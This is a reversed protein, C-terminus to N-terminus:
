LRGNVLVMESPQQSGYGDEETIRAWTFEDVPEKSKFLLVGNGEKNVRFTGASQREDSRTLWLQYTKDSALEPFGQVYLIGLESKANWMLLASAYSDEQSSPLRVWRVDTDTSIIINENEYASYPSNDSQNAQNLNNTTILWFVNSILLAAVAISAVMGAPTFNIQRRASKVKPVPKTQISAMIRAGLEPPPEIQPVDIRMTEQLMRYDELQVVADPCHHLGDRVIGEEEPTTLGFAFDPILSQITECDITPKIDNNHSM